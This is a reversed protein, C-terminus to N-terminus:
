NIREIEGFPGPSFNGFGSKPGVGSINILIEFLEREQWNLFGYLDLINERVYLFCFLKLFKEQEPIKKLTRQSLFIRYGVGQAELVVFKEKRLIINGQLYSIMFILALRPSVRRRGFKPSTPDRGFKM